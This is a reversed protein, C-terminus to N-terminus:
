SLRRGRSGRRASMAAPIPERENGKKCGKLYGPEVGYSWGTGPLEDAWRNRALRDHLNDLDAPPVEVLLPRIETDTM